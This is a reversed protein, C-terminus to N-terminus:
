VEIVEGHGHAYWSTLDIRINSQLDAPAQKPDDERIQQGDLSIEQLSESRDFQKSVRPRNADFSTRYGSKQEKAEKVDRQLREISEAMAFKEDQVSMLHTRLESLQAILSQNDNQLTETTRQLEANRKTAETAGNEEKHNAKQLEKELTEYRLSLAAMEEKLKNSMKEAEAQSSSAAKVRRELEEDRDNSQGQVKLKNNEEELAKTREIHDKNSKSIEENSQKSKSLEMELTRVHEDRRTLSDELEKIRLRMEKESDKHKQETSKLREQLM